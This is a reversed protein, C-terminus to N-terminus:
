TTVYELGLISPNLDSYNPAPQTITQNHGMLILFPNPDTNQAQAPQTSAHTSSIPQATPNLIQNRGIARDTLPSPKHMIHSSNPNPTIPSGYLVTQNQIPNPNSNSNQIKKGVPIQQM